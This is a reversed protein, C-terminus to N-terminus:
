TYKTAIAAFIKINIIRRNITFLNIPNGRLGYTNLTKKGTTAMAKNESSGETAIYESNVSPKNEKAIDTKEQM